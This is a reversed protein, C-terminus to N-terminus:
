VPRPGPDDRLVDQVLTAVEKLRKFPVKEAGVFEPEFDLRAIEVVTRIPDKRRQHVEMVTGEVIMFVRDSKQLCFTMENSQRQIAIVMEAQSARVTAPLEKFEKFMFESFEEHAIGEDRERAERRRNLEEVPVVVKSEAINSM